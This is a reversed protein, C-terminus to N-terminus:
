LRKIVARDKELETRYEVPEIVGDKNVDLDNVRKTVFDLYEEGTIKDDKNKDAVKFRGKARNVYAKVRAKKFSGELTKRYTALYAATESETVLSDKNKDLGDFAGFLGAIMEEASLVGDRNTDYYKMEQQRLGIKEKNTYAPLDGSAYSAMPFALTLALALFAFITKMYFTM